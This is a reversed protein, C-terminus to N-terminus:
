VAVMSVGLLRILRYYEQGYSTSNYYDELSSSGAAQGGFNIAVDGVKRSTVKNISGPTGEGQSAMTAWSLLHATFYSLGRDYYDGWAGESLESVADDIFLQIRADTFPPDTFEPFRARIDAPTTM